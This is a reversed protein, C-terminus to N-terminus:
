TLFFILNFVFSILFDFQLMKKGYHRELNELVEAGIQILDGCDRFSVLSGVRIFESDGGGPCSVSCHAMSSLASVITSVLCEIRSDDVQM